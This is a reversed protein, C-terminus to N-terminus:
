IQQWGVARGARWSQWGVARVETQDVLLDDLDDLLLNM